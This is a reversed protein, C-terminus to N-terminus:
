RPQSDRRQPPRRAGAQEDHAPGGPGRGLTADLDHANGLIFIKEGALVSTLFHHGAALRSRLEDEGYSVLNVPRGLRAELEALTPTLDALGVDGVVFVDLDSTARDNGRAFSGFVFAVRIRGEFERFSERVSDVVGATKVILGRLESFLPSGANARYYVQRGRRSTELIGVESLRAVERQLSSPRTGLHQALDSLYWWRDPHLYVAALVDQRLRPMLADLPRLSKRM